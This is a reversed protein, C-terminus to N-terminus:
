SSRQYINSNMIVFNNRASFLKNDIIPITIRRGTNRKILVAILSSLLPGIINLCLLTPFFLLFKLIIGVALDKGALESIYLWISQLVFILM